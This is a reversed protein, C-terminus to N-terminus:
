KCINHPQTIGSNHLLGEAFPQHHQIHLLCHSLKSLVQHHSSASILLSLWAFESRVACLEM